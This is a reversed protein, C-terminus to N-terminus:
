RGPLRNEGIPSRRSAAPLMALRTGEAPMATPTVRQSIKSHRVSPSSSQISKAIGAQPDCFDGDGNICAFRGREVGRNDRPNANV